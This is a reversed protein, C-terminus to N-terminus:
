TMYRTQSRSRSRPRNELGFEQYNDKILQGGDNLDQKLDKKM